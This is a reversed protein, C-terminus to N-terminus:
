YKSSGGSLYKTSSEDRMASRIFNTPLRIFVLVMIYRMSVPPDNEILNSSPLLLLPSFAYQITMQAIVLEKINSLNRPGMHTNTKTAWEQCGSINTLRSHLLRWQFCSSGGGYVKVSFDFLQVMKMAASEGVWSMMVDLCESPEWLSESFLWTTTASLHNSFCKLSFPFVFSSNTFINYSLLRVVIVSTCQHAQYQPIVWYGEMKANKTNRSQHQSVIICPVSAVSWALQMLRHLQACAWHEIKMLDKNSAAGKNPLM